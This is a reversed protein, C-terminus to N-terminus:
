HGLLFSELNKHAITVQDRDWLYLNRPPLSGEGPEPIEFHFNTPFCFPSDFLDILRFGGSRIDANIFKGRNEHSTSLLYKSDSKLFNSLTLQIDRYSLHFLCDRNLVLDSKPFSDTTIDFQMFSIFKSAFNRNLDAILPEVIDGGLYSIGNLDVLKMWNFDGCPADLISKIEFKEFIIPLLSRISTTMAFTSGSGSVSEKSGWANRSYILTFRDRLSDVRAIARKDFERRLKRIPSSFIFLSLSLFSMNRKAIFLRGFIRMTCSPM